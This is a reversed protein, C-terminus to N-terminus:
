YRADDSETFNYGEFESKEVTYTKGHLVNESICVCTRLEGYKSLKRVFENFNVFLSKDNITPRYGKSIKDLLEFLKFDIVISIEDRMNGVFFSLVVFNKFKSLRHIEQEKPLKTLNNEIKVKQSLTYKSDGLPIIIHNEKIYGEWRYVAKKLKSYIDKLGQKKGINYYYVANIFNKFVEDSNLLSNELSYQRINFKYLAQRNKEYLVSQKNKFSDIYSFYTLDTLKNKTLAILNGPVDIYNFTIALEDKGLNRELMPDFKSITEHLVSREKKEFILFPTTAELYNQLRRPKIIESTLDVISEYEPAVIIDYIFNLILRASLILKESIMCKTLLEIISCRVKINSLFRYNAYIPCKEKCVTDCHKSAESFINNENDGFVKDFLSFLFRSKVGNEDVEYMQYDAFNISKFYRNETNPSDSLNIIGADEIYQKLLKYRQGCESDIFNSLTGLNIAIIIKKNNNEYLKDDSFDILDEKLCEQSTKDPFRSETADNIITFGNLLNTENKFYSLMHSKGDGVSGCLLILVKDEEKISKLLTDLEEEVDRKVHMYKQFESFNDSSDVAEISSKKLKTLCDILKCM